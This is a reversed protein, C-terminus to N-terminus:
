AIGWKKDQVTQNCLGLFHPFAPDNQPLITVEYDAVGGPLLRSIVLLDGGSSSMMDVTKHDMRLRYEDIPTGTARFEYYWLRYRRTEQGSPTNLSVNFYVDPYKRATPGIAPFFPVAPHPILVESTGKVGTRHGSDFSSLQMLFMTLAGTGAIPLQPSPTSVGGGLQTQQGRVLAPFGTPRRPPPAVPVGLPPFMAGLAQHSQTVRSTARTRPERSMAEPKVLTTNLSLSLTADNLPQVNPNSTDLLARLVSDLADYVERDVTITLDFEIAISLEVNRFLGDRTLNASGVIALAKSQGDLIYLKPHFVYSSITHFVTSDSSFHMLTELAEVSTVEDDIGVAGSIHGGRGLLAELSDTLRDLGSVRMYAVAFRFRNYDPSAMENSLVDGM